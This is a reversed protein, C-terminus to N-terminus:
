VPGLRSLQFTDRARLMANWRRSPPAYEFVADVHSARVLRAAVPFTRRRRGEGTEFVLAYPADREVFGDPRVVRVASRSIDLIAAPEGDLTLTMEIVIYRQEKRREIAPGRM